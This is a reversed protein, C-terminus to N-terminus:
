LKVRNLARNLLQSIRQRLDFLKVWFTYGRYELENKFLRATYGVAWRGTLIAKIHGVSMDKLIIWNTNRLPNMDKDFNQGWTFVERPSNGQDILIEFDHDCWINFKDPLIGQNVLMEGFRLKPNSKWYRITKKSLKPLPDDLEWYEALRTLDVKELFLDIREERTM